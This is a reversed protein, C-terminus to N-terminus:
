DVPDGEIGSARRIGARARGTVIFSTAAAVPTDRLVTERIRFSAGSVTGTDAAVRVRTRAAALSSSYRGFGSARANRPAGVMSSPAITRSM